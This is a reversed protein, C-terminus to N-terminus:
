APLIGALRLTNTLVNIKLQLEANQETTRLAKARDTELLTIAGTRATELTDHQAATPTNRSPAIHESVIPVTGIHEAVLNAILGKLSTLNLTDPVAGLSVSLVVHNYPLAATDPYNLIFSDPVYIVSNDDGLLTIINVKNKVEDQFVFPASTFTTSGNTVGMPAYYTDYVDKGLKYIDEMSRIAVATYLMTAATSWPAKLAFRGHQQIAPTVKAM